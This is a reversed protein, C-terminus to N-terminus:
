NLRETNSIMYKVIDSWVKYGKNSIHVGDELLYEGITKGGEDIFHSYVDFFEVGTENALEM